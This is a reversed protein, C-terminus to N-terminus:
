APGPLAALLRDVLADAGADDIVLPPVAMVAAGQRRLLLGHARARALVALAADETTMELVVVLGLRRVDVVEGTGALHAVRAAMRGGLWEAREVLNEKELVDLTALAAACAVAHGSTTHGYRLGGIVPDAAFGEYVHEGATVAAIPVYGGALGKSSVVVDPVVGDRACAFMAGARGYATFVEDVVLLTGTADCLARLGALFGPPLVVGGGVNLFPEVVVAAPPDAPDAGIAREFADLLVPLAEPRRLDRPPLPLDVLTVPLPATMPHRCRPLDSLSRALVTAGQYGRAFAVIRSRPRGQHAAHGVAMLVAADFGESGSNVFLTRTLPAPLYSAIREALAGALDHSTLSVDVHHLRGAQEAVARTVEPHAYGCTSNLASGEIYERGDIDWIRYGSAHTFMAASRDAGVPTWTHWVHRRDRERVVDPDAYRAAAVAADIPGM